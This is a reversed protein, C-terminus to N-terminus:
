GPVSTPADAASNPPSPFSVIAGAAQLIARRCEAAYLEDSTTQLYRAPVFLDHTRVLAVGLRRAATMCKETFEEGRDAVPSLRFGNAFLVGKAYETVDDRSFDENLNRELQSFKEINVPRSDKGEIEGLFRGESSHFVVDFESEANTFREGTFGMLRLAEIVARELPRGSEYLLARLSSVEELKQRLVHRETQLEAMLRTKDTIASEVVAEADLRYETASTWRPPPTIDADSRLAVAISSLSGALRKGYAIAEKTWELQKDKKRERVFANYDWRLPPLLILAGRGKRIAAGVVRNGAATKLLVDSFKGSELFAEYKSNNGFEKWYTALYKLPGEARIESGSAARVSGSIPVSDYSNLGDVITTIRANRGTGSYTRDGTDVFVEEPAALFVIILKGADLAAQMESKWHAVAEKAKFSSEETLRPKGQYTHTHFKHPIAPELVVIDADLLSRRSDLEIDEGQGGPFGYGVSLITFRPTKEAM